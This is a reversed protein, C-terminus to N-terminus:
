QTGEHQIVNDNGEVWSKIAKIMAHSLEVAIDSDLSATKIEPFETAVAQWFAESGKELASMVREQDIM